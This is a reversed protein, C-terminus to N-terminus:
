RIRSITLDLQKKEGSIMSVRTGAVALKAVWKPDQLDVAVDSPVAVLVYAGPPLDRISFTGTKSPAATRSQRPPMGNAIWTQYESPFAFVTADAVPAGSDRVTGSLDSIEDTYTVVVDNINTTGLELPQLLVDRGGSMVSRLTWQPFAGNVTVWYKGPLYQGTTFQGTTDARAPTVMGNMPVGDAPNVSVSASTLRDAAPRPASTGDFVIHGSLRVGTRLGINLGAVDADGVTLPQQAWLTPETSVTAPASGNSVMTVLGNGSSVTVVSQPGAAPRPTRQMKLVYQGMPVALFAFQGRGDTAAIATEFGSESMTDVAEAPILRVGLNAVLGDPGSVTGSVRVTKVLRLQLDVGQREDGAALTIVNAQSAVAASAHYTTVYTLIPGEAAVPIGSGGGRGGNFQLQQDGVRMGSTAPFPMGAASYERSLDLTSGSQLAQVYADVSSTPVNTLTTPVVVVYDGPTLQPIRYMGRDDTTASSFGTLKPKGASMVRRLTRVQIGVAPEGTEDAVTGSISAYKWLKITATVVATASDVEVPRSPGGVRAQGYSGSQYGPAAATLNFAGKTLARFVFRGESNTLVRNPDNAAGGGGARGPPQSPDVPVRGIITVAASAIPRGTAADVVQGLIIATGPIQPTQAGQPNPNAPMAGMPPPPPPPPPPQQGSLLPAFATVVLTLLGAALVYSRQRSM